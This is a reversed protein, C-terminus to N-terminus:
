GMLAWPAWLPGAWLPGSMLSWPPGMLAWPAWLPLIHFRDLKAACVPYFTGSCDKSYHTAVSPNPHLLQCNRASSMQSSITTKTTWPPDGPDWLTGLADGRTGPAHGPPGRLDWPPEPSEKPIGPIRKM